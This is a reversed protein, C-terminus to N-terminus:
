ASLAETRMWESIGEPSLAGHSGLISAGLVASRHGLTTTELSLRRTALPLAREYVVSRIGALLNDQLGALAGGLIIRNPNYFNVLTALVEGIRQGAVRVLRLAKADGAQTLRM